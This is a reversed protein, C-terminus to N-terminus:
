DGGSVERVTISSSQMRCDLHLPRDPEKFLRLKQVYDRFRRRLRAEKKKPDGLTTHYTPENNLFAVFVNELERLDAIEVAWPLSEGINRPGAVVTIEINNHIVDVFWRSVDSMYLPMQTQIIHNKEDLWGEHTLPHSHPNIINGYVVPYYVRVPIDVDLAILEKRLFSIVLDNALPDNIIVEADQLFPLDIQKWSSPVPFAIEDGRVVDYSGEIADLDDKTVKNLDLVLVLGKEQLRRVQEESGTVTQFLQQPWIDLFQYPEPPNGTPSGIVIPIKETILRSLKIVFENSSLSTVHHTLDVDPNLSVLNKKTIQLTSEDSLDAADVLVELDSAELSDIVDKTGTLTLIVRKSLIGNPLLGDVTRDAPLHILRVPVNGFTKTAIISQNVALWIVIAGVIAILKRQWNQLFPNPTITEM